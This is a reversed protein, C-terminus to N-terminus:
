GVPLAGLDRGLRRRRMITAVFGTMASVTKGCGPPGYM